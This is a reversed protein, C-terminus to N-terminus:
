LPADSGRLRHVSRVVGDHHIGPQPFPRHRRQSLEPLHHVGERFGGRDPAKPTAGSLHASITGPSGAGLGFHHLAPSGGRRVAPHHHAHLGGSIGGGGDAPPDRRHDSRAPLPRERDTKDLLWHLYREQYKVEPDIVRYYTTEGAEKGIPIPVLAKALLTCARVQVSLEGTRTRFVSGEVGLMDGLDLQSLAEWGEGLAQQTFYLQIKGTHDQLDMFLARGMGRRAWIRGAIRVLLDPSQDERVERIRHTPSFTYPYPNVGSALLEERKQMRNPDFGCTVTHATETM